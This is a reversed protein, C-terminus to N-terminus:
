QCAQAGEFPDNKCNIVDMIDGLMHIRKQLVDGGPGRFELSV